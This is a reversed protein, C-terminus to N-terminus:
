ASTTSRWRPRRRPPTSWSAPPTWRPTTSSRPSADATASSRRGRAARPASRSTSAAAPRTSSSRATPCGTPSRSSHDGLTEALLERVPAGAGRAAALLARAVTCLVTRLADLTALALVAVPLAFALLVLGMGPGFAWPGFYDTDGLGGIGQSRRPQALGALLALPVLAVRLLAATLLPKLALLGVTAGSAATASSECRAGGRVARRRARRARCRRSTRASSATPPAATSGCSGGARRRARRAAAAARDRRREAGRGPGARPGRARRAARDARRSSIRRRRAPASWRPSPARARRDRGGGGRHRRGLQQPSPDLVARRVGADLGRVDHGGAASDAEVRYRGPPVSARVTGTTTRLTLQPPPCATSATIDGAEARAQLSFGCFGAIDIDGSRTTVRASGRYGRFRSRGAGTRVTLPVNDPVIVPLRGLVGAAGHQPCRSNIRLEGGAVTRQLDADHGFAYHDTRQVGLMARAGGGVIVVDADDVDLAVGSLSGRM